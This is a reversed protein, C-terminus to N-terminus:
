PCPPLDLTFLVHALAPFTLL